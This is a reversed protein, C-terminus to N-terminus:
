FRSKEVRALTLSSAFIRLIENQQSNFGIKEVQLFALLLLQHNYFHHNYFPWLVYKAQFSFSFVLFYQQAM